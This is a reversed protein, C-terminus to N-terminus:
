MYRREREVIPTEPFASYIIQQAARLGCLMSDRQHVVELPEMNRGVEEVELASGEPM